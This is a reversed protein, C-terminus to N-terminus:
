TYGCGIYQNFVLFYDFFTLLFNDNKCAHFIATHQIPTNEYHSPTGEHTYFASAVYLIYYGFLLAYQKHFPYLHGKYAFKSDKTSSLAKGSNAHRSM